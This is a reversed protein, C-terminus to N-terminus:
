CIHQIKITATQGKKRYRVNYLLISIVRRMSSTSASVVSQQYWEKSDHNLLEIYEENNVYHDPVSHKSLRFKNVDVRLEDENDLFSSLDDAKELVVGDDDSAVRAAINGSNKNTLIFTNAAMCEFYTYSYTEPWISNLVAVHIKNNRLAEIMANDGDKQISVPICTVDQTAPTGQGFQYLKYGHNQSELKKSADVWSDWGKTRKTAGVYGIRLPEIDKLTDHNDEYQEKPILHGIVRVNNEYMPYAAGWLKAVYLSPAIFSISGGGINSFFHQMKKKKKAIEAHHCDKCKMEKIIADGCFEFDNKILNYQVCATYFDHLYVITPCGVVSMLIKQLEDLDVNMLHHILVGTLQKRSKSLHQLEGIVQETSLIQKFSDNLMLGWFNLDLSLIKKRVPFLVVADIGHNNLNAIQNKIYKETGASQLNINTYFFELVFKDRM